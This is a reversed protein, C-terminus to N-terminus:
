IPKGHVIEAWLGYEWEQEITTRKGASSRVTPHLKYWGWNSPPNKRNSQDDPLEFLIDPPIPELTKMTATSIIKKVNAFSAKIVWRSSVTQSHRLTPAMERVARLGDVIHKWLIGADGLFIPQIADDWRPPNEMAAKLARRTDVDIAEIRPVDAMFMDKETAGAFFEWRDEVDGNPDGTNANFPFRATLRDKAGSYSEEITWTGGAQEVVLIGAQIEQKTGEFSIESWNGAESRGYRLPQKYAGKQGNIIPM